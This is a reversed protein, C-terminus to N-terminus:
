LVKHIKRKINKLKRSVTATSMGCAMSIQVLSQDKVRLDFIKREEETFNCTARFWECEPQTFETKLNM